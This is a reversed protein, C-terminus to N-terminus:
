RRRPCCATGQDTPPRPTPRTCTKRAVPLLQPGLQEASGRGTKSASSGPAHPDAGQYRRRTDLPHAGDCGDVRMIVSAQAHKATNTLAESAVYYGAVQLHGAPRSSLNLNLDVPVASRRALAKLAPGLGAESLIAPHIGRSIERLEDLATGLGDALLSLEGQIKDM